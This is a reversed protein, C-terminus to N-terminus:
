FTVYQQLSETQACKTSWHTSNEGGTTSTTTSMHRYVAGPSIDLIDAGM